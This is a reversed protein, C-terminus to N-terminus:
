RESICWSIICYISLALNFLRLLLQHWLQGPHHDQLGFRSRIRLYSPAQISFEFWRANGYNLFAVFFPIFRHILRVNVVCVLCWLIQRHLATRAQILFFPVFPSRGIGRIEYVISFRGLLVKLSFALGGRVWYCCCIIFCRFLM